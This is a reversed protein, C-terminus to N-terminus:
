NIWFSCDREYVAAM